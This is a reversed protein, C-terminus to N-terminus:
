PRGNLHFAALFVGFLPVIAAVAIAAVGGGVFAFLIAALWLILASFALSVSRLTRSPSSSGVTQWVDDGSEVAGLTRSDVVRFGGRGQGTYRVGTIKPVVGGPRRPDPIQANPGTM